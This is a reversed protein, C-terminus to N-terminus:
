RLVGTTQSPPLLPSSCCRTGCCPRRSSVSGIEPTRLLPMTAFSSAGNRRAIAIALRFPALLKAVLGKNRVGSIPLTELRFGSPPVLQQELGNRGGLWIVPTKRHRLEEAVALGPFIHGGTGGAMIMVPGLADSM